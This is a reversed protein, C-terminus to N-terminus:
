YRIMASLRKFSCRAILGWMRSVIADLFEAWSHLVLGNWMAQHKTHIPAGVAKNKRLPKEPHDSNEKHVTRNILRCNDISQVCFCTITFILVALM